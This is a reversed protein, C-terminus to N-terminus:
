DVIEYQQGPITAGRIGDIYQKAAERSSWRRHKRPGDKVYHFVTPKSAYSYRVRVGKPIPRGIKTKPLPTALLREIWARGRATVRHNEDVLQNVFLWERAATGSRSNWSQEGIATAPDPHYYIALLFSITVPAPQNIHQHM